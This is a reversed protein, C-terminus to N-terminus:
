EPAASSIAGGLSVAQAVVDDLPCLGVGVELHVAHEM